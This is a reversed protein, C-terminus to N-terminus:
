VVSKRDLLELGYPSEFGEFLDLVKQVRTKQESSLNNNYYDIVEQYKDEVITVITNPSNRKPDFDIYTNNIYKMLHMLRNSYPGYDGKDFDLNLNEGFKQLFYAVKQAVLLNIEYGLIRYNALIYIFIARQPTLGIEKIKVKIQDNYGPEFILIDIENSLKNLRSTILKKVKQWELKGNGAGLPPISISKIKYKEIIQILDTLGKDIYEISSNERWHQKTPFNIIYKPYLLNTETILLKGIDITGDKCAKVYLKYNDPFAEKFQLAIGKGMIGKTNVTNIIAETESSIINGITFRIM